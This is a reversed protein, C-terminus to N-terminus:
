KSKLYSLICETDLLVYVEDITSFMSFEEDNTM